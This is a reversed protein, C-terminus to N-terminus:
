AAIAVSDVNAYKGDKSHKVSVRLAQGGLDAIKWPGGLNQGVAARIQGLKVNKNTGMEFAGQATLDLWASYRVTKQDALDNGPADLRVNVDLVYTTEGSDKNTIGRVELSHTEDNLIVGLYEGEPVPQYETSMEGEIPMNLFAAPDFASATENM